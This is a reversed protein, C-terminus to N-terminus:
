SGRVSCSKTGEIVQLRRVRPARPIRTVLSAEVPRWDHTEDCSPTVATVARQEHFLSVLKYTHPTRGPAICGAKQLRRALSLPSGHKVCVAKHPQNFSMGVPQGAAQM